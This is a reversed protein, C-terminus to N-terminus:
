WAHALLTKIDDHSPRRPNGGTCMDDLVNRAMVDAQQRFVSEEIKLGGIREPINMSANLDRVAGILSATGEEVSAAPLDLMAAIERYKVGADFSNFRIVFAAPVDSEPVIWPTPSDGGLSIIQALKLFHHSIRHAAM